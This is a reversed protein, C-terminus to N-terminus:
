NQTQRKIYIDSGSQSFSFPTAIQLAKLAEAINEKEFVGNFLENGLTSDQLHIDVNYWREMERALLRFPKNKFILQNNIWATEDCFNDGKKLNIPVIQLSDPSGKSWALLKQGPTVEVKREGGHMTVAVKGNLVATESHDDEPYAKVNFVTGLVLIDIHGTHVIFPHSEHQVVDFYAEGELFVERNGHAFGDGYTLQSSSNMWVTTGDPLQISSRAGKRMVIKNKEQSIHTDVLPRTRFLFAASVVVLILVAAAMARIPIRRVKKESIVVPTEEEPANMAAELNAWGSEAWQRTDTTTSPQTSDVVEMVFATDPHEKMWQQLEELETETAEGSMRRALLLSIRDEKM